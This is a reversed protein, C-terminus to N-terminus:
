GLASIWEAARRGSLLAGHVTTADTDHTAEGAFFVRDAIPAALIDRDGPVADVGPYSYSGRAFPDTSWRTIRYGLPEPINAGYMRRLSAMGEAVTATDDLAEIRRAVSGGRLAVIVPVGSVKQLPFWGTASTRDPGFEMIWDADDWFQRDFRLYLKNYVGMGLARIAHRKADPLPPDFTIADAKLVGLPVTVLVRNAQFVGRDTEVRVGTPSHAIRSVIHRLRVDLGDALRTTLQDYGGPFVEEDGSHIEDTGMVWLAVQEADAGSDDQAFMRMLRRMREASDGTLPVQDLALETGAAMSRQAFEPQAALNEMVTEVADLDAEFQRLAAPDLRRGGSYATIVDQNLVVTPLAFEDRLETLPNDDIGHIWSAGLDVPADPWGRDTWLRGGVRDRAELVTVQHGARTLDRAATLGAMGAGIVLVTSM